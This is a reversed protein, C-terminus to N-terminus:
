SKGPLLGFFRRPPRKEPLRSLGTIRSESTGSVPEVPQDPAADVRTTTPADM